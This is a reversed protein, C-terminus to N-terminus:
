HVRKNASLATCVTFSLYVSLCVSLYQCLFVCARLTFLMSAAVVTQVTISNSALFNNNVHDVVGGIGQGLNKNVRISVRSRNATSLRM